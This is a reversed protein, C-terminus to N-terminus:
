AAEGTRDALAVQQVGLQPLQRREAELALREALWPIPEFAIVRGEAGVLRAMAFSDRGRGAGADLALDGPRLLARALRLVIDEYASGNGLLASLRPSIADMGESVEDPPPQPM